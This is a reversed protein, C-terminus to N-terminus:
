SGPMKRAGFRRESKEPKPAYPLDGEWDELRMQDFRNKLNIREGSRINRGKAIHLEVVGQLHTRSDPTDYYDERHLFAIVDAKQELEGSERLDTLTPRKDSRGAVNRNLQALLVVPIKWEKALNKAVQVIRGYEFRAQKADIEFDHIHDVVLLQLPTRMHMRRARAEFQRVNISATDDIYLKAGQLQRIAPTMRITYEDDATQTPAIVWSHPIRGLSAMNRHLCDRKSMELSFLGTTVGRLSSFLSLNLGFVSKGMSPRAAILYLTSPQLGHTVNNFEQWPTPMGTMDSGNQYQDCFEEYWEGIEDSALELGGSQARHIGTLMQTASNLIEDSGRGDPQFGDNAISTGVEILKRLVSKDRVIEAYARVNAASPTTSAIEAVYAGNDVMEGMGNSDFWDGVTLADFPQRKDALEKIARWILQHERRYFDSDDLMDSVLPWSGERIMLAGLVAQEAEVSQPPVRIGDSRSEPAYMAAMRDVQDNM